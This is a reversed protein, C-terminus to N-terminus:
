RPLGPLAQCSRQACILSAARVVESANRLQWASALALFHYRPAFVQIVDNSTDHSSGELVLLM